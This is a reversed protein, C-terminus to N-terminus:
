FCAFHKRGGCTAASFWSSCLWFKEFLKFIMYGYARCPKLNNTFPQHLGCCEYQRNKPNSASFCYLTSEAVVHPQVLVHLGCGFSKVCVIFCTLLYEELNLITQFPNICVVVNMCNSKPTIQVLVMCLEKQWWMHSCWVM